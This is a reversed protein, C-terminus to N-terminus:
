LSHEIISWLGLLGQKLVIENARAITLGARIQYHPREFKLSEFGHEYFIADVKDYNISWDWHGDLYGVVDCAVGFQHWSHGAKANTVIKGPRSRGQAHLWDQRARSRYGEFMRVMYGEDVCDQVANEVKRAFFHALDAYNRNALEPFHPM